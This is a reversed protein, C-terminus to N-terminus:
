SGILCAINKKSTSIQGIVGDKIVDYEDSNIKQNPSELLLKDYLLYVQLSSGSVGMYYMVFLKFIQVLKLKLSELGSKM